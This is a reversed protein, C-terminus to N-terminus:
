CKKVSRGGVVFEGDGITPWFEMLLKEAKVTVTRRLGSRTSIGKALDQSYLGVRCATADFEISDVFERVLKDEMTPERSSSSQGM